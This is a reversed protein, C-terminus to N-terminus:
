STHGKAARVADRLVRFATGLITAAATAHRELAEPAEHTPRPPVFWGHDLAKLLIQLTIEDDSM